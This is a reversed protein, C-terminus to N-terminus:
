EGNGIEKIREQNERLWRIGETTLGWGDGRAADRKYKGQVLAGYQRKAADELATKTVLKDPFRRFEKSVWSFRDPALQFAQYAIAETAVLNHAGGLLGVAYVVVDLNSRIGGSM